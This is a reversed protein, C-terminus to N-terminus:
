RAAFDQLLQKGIHRIAIPLCLESCAAQRSVVDKEEILEAQCDSIARVIILGQQQVNPLM